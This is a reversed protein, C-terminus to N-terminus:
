KVSELNLGTRFDGDTEITLQSKGGSSKHRIDDIRSGAGIKLGKVSVLMLDGVASTSDAALKLWSDTGTISLSKVRTNDCLAISPDFLRDEVSMSLRNVECDTLILLSAGSFSITDAVVDEIVTEKTVRNLISVPMSPMWMVMDGEIRIGADNGDPSVFSLTLTDGDSELRVYEDFGDPINLRPSSVTDDVVIRLRPIDCYVLAADRDTVRLESVNAPVPALTIMDTRSGDFAIEPITEACLNDVAVSVLVAVYTIVAIILIAIKTRKM